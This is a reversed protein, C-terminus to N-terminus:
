APVISWGSDNCTTKMVANGYTSLAALCNTRIIQEQTTLGTLAALATSVTDCPGTEQFNM